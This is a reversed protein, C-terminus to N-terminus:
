TVDDKKWWGRVRVWWREFAQATRELWSKVGPVDEAILALGVPLMWLGFVPLISFVGGFVFICAVPARLWKRSPRRLATVWRQIFDPLRALLNAFRIDWLVDLPPSIKEAM